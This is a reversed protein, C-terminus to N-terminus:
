NFCAVGAQLSTGLMQRMSAGGKLSKRMLVQVPRPNSRARMLVCQSVPKEGDLRETSSTALPMISSSHQVLGILVKRQGRNRLFARIVSGGSPTVMARGSAM